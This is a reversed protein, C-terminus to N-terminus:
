TLKVEVSEPNARGDEGIRIFQLVLEDPSNAPSQDHKRRAEVARLLTAKYALFDEYCELSFSSPLAGDAVRRLFEYRLVTLELRAPQLGPAHGVSTVLFLRGDEPKLSVEQGLNPAVRIRDELVRSIKAASHSGSSALFIEDHNAMLAGTFVRNLGRALPHITSKHVPEKNAFRRTIELYDGAYRFVALDWLGLDHATLHPITFFLRQRQSRLAKLFSGKDGDEGGELYDRQLGLFRASGGYLPDSLVLSRFQESLEPDDAGYVLIADIENSTEGGIGLRSLSSFIPTSQRRRATLNEGFLNSYVSAKDASGAALVKPVSGCSMLGHEADPHGLLANSVLLFLQRLPFHNGNRDCLEMLQTLRDLLLRESPGTGSFRSRNEWIPCGPGASPRQFECDECLAWGPHGLVTDVVQPLLQGALQHSLNVLTIRVESDATKGSVLLDELARRVRAVSPTDPVAKWQELLQGDNAAILYIHSPDPSLFQEAMEALLADREEPHEPRHIESFDRIVTLRRRPLVLTKAKELNEWEATPGGLATWIERCHYTKGDGATGTVIVSQPPDGRLANLIRDLSPTPLSLPALNSRRAASQIEEDYQCGNQPIPGYQRLFSVWRAAPPMRSAAKRDPGAM